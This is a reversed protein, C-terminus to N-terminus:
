PFTVGLQKLGESLQEIQKSQDEIVERLKANEENISEVKTNLENSLSELENSFTKSMEKNHLEITESTSLAVANMADAKVASYGIFAAISLGAIFMIRIVIQKKKM